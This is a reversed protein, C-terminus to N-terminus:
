TRAASHGVRLEWRAISLQAAFAVLLGFFTLMMAPDAIVEAPDITRISPASAAALWTGVVTLALLGRRAPERTQRYELLWLGLGAQALLYFVSPDVAGVAVFTLNMTAGIVLAWGVRRGLLLATGVAAQALFVLWAVAAARPEVVVGIVPEFWSVTDDAHDGVFSRVTDGNWWAADLLKETAARLWGLGLFLQVLVVWGPPELLRHRLEGVLSRTPNAAAHSPVHAAAEPPALTTMAVVKAM